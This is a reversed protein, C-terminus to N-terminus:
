EKLSSTMSREISPHNEVDAQLQALLHKPGAAAALQLGGMKNGLRSKLAQESVMAGCWGQCDKPLLQRCPM